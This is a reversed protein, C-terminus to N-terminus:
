SLDELLHQRGKATVTVVGAVGQEVCGALVLADVVESKDFRLSIGNACRRLAHLQESTLRAKFAPVAQLTGYRFSPPRFQRSHAMFRIFNPQISRHHWSRLRHEGYERRVNPKLRVSPRTM